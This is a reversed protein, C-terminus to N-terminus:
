VTHKKEKAISDVLKYNIYYKKFISPVNSKLLSKMKSEVIKPGKLFKVNEIRENMLAKKFNYLYGAPGGTPKLDKENM